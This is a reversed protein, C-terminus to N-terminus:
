KILEDFLRKVQLDGYGYISERKCFEQFVKGFEDTDLDRMIQKLSQKPRGISDKTPIREIHAEIANLIFPYNTKLKLGLNTLLSTDNNQYTKWLSTLDELQKLKIRNQYLINLEKSNFGGFGYQTHTKPRVLFISNNKQYQNLFYIVFWLNIQCFLDDEFWLNIEADKPISKIKDFETVTKLYYEEITCNNYNNSIFKSRIEFVDPITEGEVSGDVLCERAIILEGELEKPFQIKLADGNLIHYQQKM